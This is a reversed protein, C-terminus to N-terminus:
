DVICEMSIDNPSFKIDQAEYYENSNSTKVKGKNFLYFTGRISEEETLIVVGSNLVYMKKM